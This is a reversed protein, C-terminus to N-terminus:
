ITTVSRLSRGTQHQMASVGCAGSSMHTVPLPLPTGEEVGYFGVCSANAAASGSHSPAHGESTTTPQNSSVHRFQGGSLGSDLSLACAGIRRGRLRHIDIEHSGGEFLCM